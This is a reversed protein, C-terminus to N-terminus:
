NAYFADLRSVTSLFARNIALAILRHGGDNFHGQSPRSNPFGRPFSGTERYYKTFDQTMNIFGIKNHRCERALMTVIDVNRDEFCVDGNKIDPIDPCYVLFIPKTTQRRLADLFFSFAQEPNHERTIENKKL